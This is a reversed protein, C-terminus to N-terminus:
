VIGIGIFGRDEVCQIPCESAVLVMRGMLPPIFCAIDVCYKAVNYLVNKIPLVADFNIYV